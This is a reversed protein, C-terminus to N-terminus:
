KKNVNVYYIDHKFTFDQQYDNFTWNTTKDIWTKEQEGNKQMPFIQM